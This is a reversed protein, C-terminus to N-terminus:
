IIVLTGIPMLKIQVKEMEMTGSIHDEREMLHTQDIHHGKARKINLNSSLLLVQDM